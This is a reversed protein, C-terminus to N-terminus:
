QKIAVSWANLTACKHRYVDDVLEMGSTSLSQSVTPNNVLLRNGGKVDPTGWDDWEPAGVLRQVNPDFNIIFSIWYAQIMPIIQANTTKYSPPNTQNWVASQEAVHPTGLGRNIQGPDSVNYHYNWNGASANKSKDHATINNLSFGPCVYRQDGYADSTSRWYKGANGISSYTSQRSDPPYLSQITDLQTQNLLPFQAQLFANSEQITATDNKPVFVTGENSADGYIAPLKLYRGTTFLDMTYGQIFDNDLTPNYAFLPNTTTDPFPTQINQTQLTKIDLGRLCALTDPKGKCGTREVLEDYQYQSEDVSRLAGLSQSEAISAHFLNDQRGGYAALQLVVSGAGASAGGLVVHDPDGGFKDIHQNVWTLAMRQDKLGNNLSGDKKVEASALFGYASVRYNIAVVMITGKSAEVLSSGNQTPYASNFGGGQM